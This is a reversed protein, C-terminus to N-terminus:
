KGGKVWGKDLLNELISMVTGCELAGSDKLMVEIALERETLIPRFQEPGCDVYRQPCWPTTFIPLRGVDTHLAAVVKTRRWDDGIRVECEVGAPPLEGREFWGNDRKMEKEQSDEISTFQKFEEPRKELTDRWDGLVEGRNDATEEYAYGRWGRKANWIHSQATPEIEFARWTGDSDQAMFKASERFDVWSPKNQLEARRALWQDKTFWGDVLVSCGFIVHGLRSKAAHTAGAPWVHVNRALWDLDTENSMANNSMAKGKICFM